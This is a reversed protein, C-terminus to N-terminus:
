YDAQRYRRRRTFGKLADVVLLAVNCREVARYTRLLSYYEIDDKINRRKRM